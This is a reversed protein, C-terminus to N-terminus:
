NLKFTFLKIIFEFILKPQAITELEASRIFQEKNASFYTDSVEM